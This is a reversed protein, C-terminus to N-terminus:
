KADRVYHPMEQPIVMSIEVMGAVVGDRRWPSQYIMKRLGGKEITYANSNGTALMERIKRCSEESHCEFLNRGILDGHSAFTQKAKDNMYLIIGEADCVTVACNLERSWEIEPINIM